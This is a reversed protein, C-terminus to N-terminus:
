TSLESVLQSMAEQVAQNRAPEIYLEFFLPDNNIRETLTEQSFWDSGAEGSIPHIFEGVSLNHKQMLGVLGPHYASILFGSGFRGYHPPNFGIKSCTEKSLWLYDDITGAMFFAIWPITHSKGRSKPDSSVSGGGFGMFEESVLTAHWKITKVLASVKLTKDLNKRVENELGAEDDFDAEDEKYSGGGYYRDQMGRLELVCANVFVKPDVIMRERALTATRLAIVGKLKQLKNEIEKTLKNVSDKRLKAKVTVM